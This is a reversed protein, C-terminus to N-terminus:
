SHATLRQRLGFQPRDLVIAEPMALSRWFVLPDIQPNTQRMFLTLVTGHTVIILNEQPHSQCLKNVAETFRNTAEVATEMGFVLEDPHTFFNVVAAEFDGKNEFYPVGRRDHEQLGDAASLPLTLVEALAAGTARAKAENSTVIRGPQYTKLHHALRHTTSRGDATLPWQHSSIAPDIHVAAHRVFILHSPM